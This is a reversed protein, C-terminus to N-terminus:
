SGGADQQQPSPRAQGSRLDVPLSALGADSRDCTRRVWARTGCLDPLLLAGLRNVMRCRPPRRPRSRASEYRVPTHNLDAAIPSIALGDQFRVRSGSPTHQRRLCSSSAADRHTLERGFEGGMSGRQSEGWSHGRVWTGPGNITSRPRLCGTESQSTASPRM